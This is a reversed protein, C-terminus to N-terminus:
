KNPGFPSDNGSGDPVGDGSNPAPGNPGSEYVRGTNVSFDSAVAVHSVTLMVLILVSIFRKM